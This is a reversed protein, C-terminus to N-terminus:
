QSILACIISCRVSCLLQEMQRMLRGTTFTRGVPDILCRFDLIHQCEDVVKIGVIIIITHCTEIYLYCSQTFRYDLKRIRIAHPVKHRFTLSNICSPSRDTSAAKSQHLDSSTQYLDCDSGDCLLDIHM